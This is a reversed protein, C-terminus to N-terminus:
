RKTAPAVRRLEDFFNFIFVVSKQGTVDSTQAAPALAVREGDPHLDFMRSPGRPQYRGESWLRPKEARFSDAQVTYPAVMIQGDLGYFLERKARSWTPHTGGGTSVQWKGGQGPFPRVYVEHRGTENSSYALWRGDPSFMPFGEIFPGNLFPTPTGPKWRSADNGEIPLIMIDVNAQHVEEFALFKGSPHWSAPRQWYKSETLRV